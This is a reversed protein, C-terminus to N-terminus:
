YVEISDSMIQDSSVVAASAPLSPVSLLVLTMLMLVGIAKSEVFLRGM